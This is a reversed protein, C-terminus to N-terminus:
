SRKFRTLDTKPTETPIGMKNLKESISKKEKETAHILLGPSTTNRWVVLVNKGVNVNAPNLIMDLQCKNLNGTKGDYIVFSQRKSVEDAASLYFDNQRETMIQENTKSFNVKDSSLNITATPADAALITNKDYNLLVIRRVHDGLPFSVRSEGAKITNTEISPTFKEFGHQDIEVIDVYSTANGVINAGVLAGGTFQVTISIKDQNELDIVNGFDLFYPLVHKEVVAAAKVLVVNDVTGGNTPHLLAFNSMFSCALVAGLNDSYLSRKVGERLLDVSIFIKTADFDSPVFAVNVANAILGANLMFGRIKRNQVEYTRSEGVKVIFSM